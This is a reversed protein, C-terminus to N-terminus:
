ELLDIIEELMFNGIAPATKEDPHIFESGQNLFWDGCLFHGKTIATFFV